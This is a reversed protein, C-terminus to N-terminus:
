KCYFLYKINNMISCPQYPNELCIDIIPLFFVSVYISSIKLFYVDYKTVIDVYNHM